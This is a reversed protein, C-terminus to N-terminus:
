EMRWLVKEIGEEVMVCKWKWLWRKMMGKRRGEGKENLEGKEWVM